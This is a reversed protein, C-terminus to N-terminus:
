SVALVWSDNSWLVFLSQLRCGTSVRRLQGPELYRTNDPYSRSHKTQEGDRRTAKKLLEPRVAVFGAPLPFGQPGTTRRAVTTIAHQFANRLLVDEGLWGLGVVPM